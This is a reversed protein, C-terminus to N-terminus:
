QRSLVVRRTVFGGMLPKDGQATLTSEDGMANLGSTVLGQARFRSEESQVAAM